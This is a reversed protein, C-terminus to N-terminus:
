PHPHHAVPAVTPTPHAEERPLYGHLRVERGDSELTVAGDLDTRFCESGLSQYRQFIEPHPFGFRNRRGVCFVVYQPRTRELFPETSSTRSGHHPAKLVTVPGLRDLLLEEGAEEVDGTLLVTVDGHRVLLVVSRDNVGELLERDEPLPPGLVELTAEGLTFSPWDAQVEEVKAGAAAAILKRSLAGDTSSAPLWLRDTPVQGLTSIMGLAHDPHPHSLVALDLRDIGEHGLFPLVFRTGTDGGGPTGGGDVLAHHGRSSLVMADGQGVSLFTIRLPAQPTLAPVIVALVLAAPALLGGLRWRGTGLAWVALGLAYLATLGPSFMPLKVTALPIAAFFRTLILLLESVWAGAWLVPTALVPSVIFLAVGGAAFGTLLGCLPLCVINSILGALSARGFASAVLPVSAGTVAASAGFTELVTERAQGWLRMWRREERPDPPALPVAARLVPTLLLLSLVALFSLQLSLDVVSSPAWIVLVLAATALSNLGDSRRWLALGLLVATAMVASRVAPPQNGTFVVYAWVFPVSAPAAVRRAEIGRFRSGGRVLVRRLLALTMLALAAVHLGSVSLVHALGSRSFAEELSDDLAARQGAALTLFLAAADESPAVERVAAALGEQTRAMSLRWASPPSLVLLRGAVVSGSFRLAQRKRLATFNKEGPNSAPALPQLRAEARIRQGPLLVPAAGHLYLSARFRAPGTSGAETGARAVALHIRTSGDFHDVRELEGEVIASGGSGLGPPVEVHAELRALGLGAVGLALLLLLHAGPLRPLALVASGLLAASILFVWGAPGTGDPSVAAGLM